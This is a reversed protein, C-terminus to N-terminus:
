RATRITTSSFNGLADYERYYITGREPTYASLANGLANYTFTRAQTSQAGVEARTLQDLGNYYYRADAGEPADM